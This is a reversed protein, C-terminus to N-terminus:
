GVGAVLAQALSLVLARLEQPREIRFPRGFGAILAPVWDLREAHLSVRVWAGAGGARSPELVALAPPLLAAVQDLTGQVHLVVEHARPAAALGTLVSAVPDFGPPPDVHGPLPRVSSIRDIRFNRSEGSTDDEGTLYWRGRHAVVGYPRVNRSGTALAAVQAARRM